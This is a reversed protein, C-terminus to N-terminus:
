ILEINNALLAFIFNFAIKKEDSLCNERQMIRYLRMIEDHAGLAVM